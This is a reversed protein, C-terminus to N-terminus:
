GARLHDFFSLPRQNALTVVTKLPDGDVHVAPAHFLIHEGAEIVLDGIPVGESLLERDMQPGLVYGLNSMMDALALSADNQSGGQYRSRVLEIGLHVSGIADVVDQRTVEKGTAGVYQHLVFALEIEISLGPEHRQRDSESVFFMPASHCLGAKIGLKSGKLPLGLNEYIDKQVAFGDSLPLRLFPQPDVHGKSTIAGSLKEALHQARTDFIQGLM